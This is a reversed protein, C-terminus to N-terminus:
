GALTTIVEYQSEQKNGGQQYQESRETEILQPLEVNAVWDCAREFADRGLFTARLRGKGDPQHAEPSRVQCEPARVLDITLIPQDSDDIVGWRLELTPLRKISYV